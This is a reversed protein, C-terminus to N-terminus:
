GSTGSKFISTNSGGTTSLDISLDPAASYQKTM